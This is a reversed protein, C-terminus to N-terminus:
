RSRRKQAVSPASCSGDPMMLIDAQPAYQNMAGTAADVGLGVVGGVVINGATMGDMSSALMGNGESYCEKSCRVSVASAGKALTVVGPTTVMQRGVSPSTLTCTAGPAGPTNIAVAQTTGRTMTACGALGILAACTMLYKLM